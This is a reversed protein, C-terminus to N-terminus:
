PVEQEIAPRSAADPRPAARSRHDRELFVLASVLRILMGIAQGAPLAFVGLVPLLAVTSVLGIAAAGASLTLALRSRDMAFILQVIVISLGEVLVAGLRAGVLPLDTPRNFVVTVVGVLLVILVYYGASAGIVVLFLRGIRSRFRGLDAQGGSLTRLLAPNLFTLLGVIVINLPSAVVRAAELDGVARSSLIWLVALNCGFWAAQVAMEALLFRARVRFPAPRYDGFRDAGRLLVSGLGMSLLKGVLLAGFPLLEAGAAPPVLLTTGATAAVVGMVVLSSCAASWHRGVLHLASRLHDQLPSLVAFAAATLALALYSALPVRGFLTFGSALVIAATLM